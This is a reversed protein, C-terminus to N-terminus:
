STPSTEIPKVEPCDSKWLKFPKEKEKREHPNKKSYGPCKKFNNNKPM